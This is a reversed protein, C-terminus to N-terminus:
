IGTMRLSLNWLRAALEPDSADAHPARRTGFKFYAGTTHAVDPSTALYLATRAARGPSPFLYKIMPRTLTYLLGPNNSGIGSAVPGPDVANATVGTGELRRALELTFSLIALKSLSYTRWVSYKRAFQLDDLDLSAVRHADSSVNVIRAPASERMRDLLRLTLQFYALYNVALTMEIGEANEQRTLNVVAANNVLLHLPRQEALFESAARDIDRRASLDCLLTRPARGGCEEAIAREVSQCKEPNRGLLVLDAGMRALAEAVARGHGSTAGTVICVKGSLDPTGTVYLQSGTEQGRGGALAM